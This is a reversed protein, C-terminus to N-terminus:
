MDHAEIQAGIEDVLQQAILDFTRWETLGSEPLNPIITGIKDPGQYIEYVLHDTFEESDLPYVIFVQMEGSIPVEITYHYPTM